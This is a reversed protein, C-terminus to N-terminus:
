STVRTPIVARVVRNALSCQVQATACPARAPPLLTLRRHSLYFYLALELILTGQGEAHGVDPEADEDPEESSKMWKEMEKRQDPDILRYLVDIM